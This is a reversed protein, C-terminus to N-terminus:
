DLLTVDRSGPLLGKAGIDTRYHAGEFHIRRVARYTREVSELLSNGLATVGLVRGGNTVLRDNVWRTGAHFTIVGPEQCAAELGSIPKGKEYNDPYGKSAMIVCTACGPRWRVDLEGLRGELCAEIVDCLDTELLPLIVQAEPDGFRSNFELVCPGDDTIMLGAYLVGVYLTGEQRLGDVAPQLIADVVEQVLRGTVFPAPAYCGMGGTNPGCDGDCVPKHDQAALMPVVTRGDTFALLSAEEGQLCEEIVVEQGSDGFRKEVMAERLAVEAEDLTACVTSGKGAALGSVKVVLPPEQQRLYDLAVQFDSFIKAKATPIGHRLMFRKAFAKSGELQAAARLPGFIRLGGSQFADVIAEVLPAEPGVVTLEVGNDLVFSRLSEIDSAAISVNSVSTTAAGRGAFESRSVTGGNGPAVWIQVVQSSQALKWALAHERGGSGVILIKTIPKGGDM